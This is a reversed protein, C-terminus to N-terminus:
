IIGSKKTKNAFDLIHRVFCKPPVVTTDLISYLIVIKATKVKALEEKIYTDDVSLYKTWNAWGTRYTIENPFPLITGELKHKRAVNALSQGGIDLNNFPRKSSILEECFESWLKFLVSKPKALLYNLCINPLVPRMESMSVMVEKDSAALLGVLYKIDETLVVHWDLWIGGYEYLIKSKYYEIKQQINQLHSCDVTDIYDSITNRNLVKVDNFHIKMSKICQSILDTTDEFEVYTWLM